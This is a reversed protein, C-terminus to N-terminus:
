KKQVARIKGIPTLCVEQEESIFTERKKKATISHDIFGSPNVSQDENSKRKFGGIKNAPIALLEEPPTDKVLLSMGTWNPSTSDLSSDDENEDTGFNDHDQVIEDINETSQESSAHLSCLTLSATSTSPGACKWCSSKLVTTSTSSSGSGSSTSSTNSNVAESLRLPPLAILSKPCQCHDQDGDDDDMKDEDEDEDDSIAEETESPCASEMPEANFPSASMTSVHLDDFENESNDLDDDEVSLDLKKSTKILSKGGGGGVILPPISQQKTTTQIDPIGWCDELSCSSGSDFVELDFDAATTSPGPKPDDTNIIPDQSTGPQPEPNSSTTTTTEAGTTSTSAEPFSSM